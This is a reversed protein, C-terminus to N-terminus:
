LRAVQFSKGDFDIHYLENPNDKILFFDQQFERNISFITQKGTGRQALPCRIRTNISVSSTETLIGLYLYYPLYSYWIIRSDPIDSIAQNYLM